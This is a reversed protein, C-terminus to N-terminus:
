SGGRLALSRAVRKANILQASAEVVCDCARNLRGLEVTLRRVIEAQEDFEPLTVALSRIDELGLGTKTAGRQNARIRVKGIPARLYWALFEPLVHAAPRALALHQNIYAIEDLNRVLAVHGVDATISILLDGSAVRSRLGEVKEPLDVRQLDSLDLDVSDGTLNGMRLFVAGAEAYYKSWGRSGSTVFDFLQTTASSPWCVENASRWEKTLTGTVGAQIIAARQQPAQDLFQDLRELVDDIKQNTSQLKDVVTKQEDIPALPFAAGRLDDARISPSNDGRMKTTIMQIFEESRLYEFLFVSDVLELPNCVYFGTSAIAEALGDDILAINRLYPRVMSFVTAGSYVARSARSPAKAAEVIKPERIEQLDNNVSDIDLYAFTTGHPKRTEMERLVSGLRVWKWNDPIEYPQEDEPILAGSPVEDFDTILPTVRNRAM